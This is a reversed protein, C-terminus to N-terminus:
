VRSEIELFNQEQSKDAVLNEALKNAIYLGLGISIKCFREDDVNIDSQIRKIQEQTMGVGTDSITIKYMKQSATPLVTIKISGSPTYKIANLLLIVLVQKIRYSDNFILFPIDPSMEVEVKINKGETQIQILNKCDAVIDALNFKTYQYQLKKANLSSYDLINNVMYLLLNNSYFIPKLLEDKISQSIEPYGLLIDLMMLSCNLPTRLEHSLSALMRMKFQTALKIHQYQLDKTVDELYIILLKETYPSGDESNWKLEALIIQAEFIQQSSDQCKM